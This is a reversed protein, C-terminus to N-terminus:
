EADKNEDPLIAALTQTFTTYDMTSVSLLICLKHAYEEVVESTGPTSHFVRLLAEINELLDM